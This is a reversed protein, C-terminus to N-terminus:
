VGYNKVTDALRRLRAYLGERALLESHRGREVVRGEDMVLIEDMDELGSLSHTITLVTRGGAWERLSARIEAGTLTDLGQDAEDLLVVPSNRLFVRALALRQRQGGSLELGNEGVETEWGAPLTSIFDDLRALRCAAALDAETAEPRALLINERMTAHFIWPDQSLVGLCARVEEPAVASIERGDLTIAGASYPWFRLLLALVTSKGAGSSGVLAKKAGPPLHLSFDRLAFDEEPGYAFCVNQWRIDPVAGDPGAKAPPATPAAPPAAPAAPPVAAAPAPEDEPALAFLRAAATLSEDLYELALPMPQLAEFAAQAALGTMALFIGDLRGAAVLGAGFFVGAILALHSFLRILCATLNDLAYIKHRLRAVEGLAACIAARKAGAAGCATLEALGQIYDTIEKYVADWLRATEAATGGTARRALLPAGIGGALALLLLAAAAAPNYFLLFGACLLVVVCAAFPAALVRLYFFQLTEIDATIQRFLEGASRSQLNAPALPELARYFWVRIQKLIRFTVDHTFYREGYRLAARSVGFFRVAAILLMLDFLPPQLAAASILVAAAALLGANALVSAAGSAAAGLMMSRYPRLLALLRLFVARKEKKNM